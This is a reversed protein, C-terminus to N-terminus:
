TAYGHYKNYMPEDDIDFRRLKRTREKKIEKRQKSSLNVCRLGAKDLQYIQNAM